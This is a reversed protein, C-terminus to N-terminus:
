MTFKSLSQENLSCHKTFTVRLCTDRPSINNVSVMFARGIRMGGEAANTPEEADAAYPGAKHRRLIFDEHIQLLTRLRPCLALCPCTEHMFEKLASENSGRTKNIDQETHHFQKCRKKSSIKSFYRKPDRWISIPKDVKEERNAFPSPPPVPGCEDSPPSPIVMMEIKDELEKMAVADVNEELIGSISRRITSIPVDQAHTFTPRRQYTQYNSTSPQPDVAVSPPVYENGFTSRTPTLYPSRPQLPVQLSTSRSHEGTSSFYTYQAQNRINCTLNLKLKWFDM